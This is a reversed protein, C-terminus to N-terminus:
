LRETEQSVTLVGNLLLRYILYMYGAAVAHAPALTGAVRSICSTCRLLAGRVHSRSVVTLKISLRLGSSKKGWLGPREVCDLKQNEYGSDTPSGVSRDAM